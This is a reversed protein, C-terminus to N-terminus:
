SNQDQDPNGETDKERDERLERLGSRGFYILCIVWVVFGGRNFGSHELMDPDQNIFGDYGFWLAFAFFLVPLFMPHDFPTPAAQEDEDDFDDDLYEDDLLDNDDPTDPM